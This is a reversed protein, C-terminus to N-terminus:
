SQSHESVVSLKVTATPLIVTVIDGAKHGLLASGVVSERSIKNDEMKEHEGVITYTMEEGVEFLDSDSTEVCVVEMVTVADDVVAIQIMRELDTIRAANMAQENKATDYEANESLDGFERAIRIRDAIANKEQKLSELEEHYENLRQRSVRIKAEKESM